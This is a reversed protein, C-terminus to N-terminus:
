CCDWDYRVKSFDRNALDDQEMIFHSIGCDGYGIGCEGEDSLQLLLFEHPELEGDQQYCPYGGIRSIEPTRESNEEEEDEESVEEFYIRGPREFPLAELYDKDAFPHELILGDESEEVTEIFRVLPDAEIGYWRSQEVFVQILGHDPLEPINHIDKLNLQAMFLMPKGNKGIPYEDASRLYPCGGLKSEWPRGEGKKFYIYDSGTIYEGRMWGYEEDDFDFEDDDDSDDDDSEEDDDSDDESDDDVDFEDEIDLEDYDGSEDCKKLDDLEDIKKRDKMSMEMGGGPRPMFLMTEPRYCVSVKM